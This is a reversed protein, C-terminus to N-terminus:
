GMGEGRAEREVEAPRSFSPLYMKSARKALHVGHAKSENAAAAPRQEVEALQKVATYTRLKGWPCELLPSGDRATATYINTLLWTRILLPQRAKQQEGRRGPAAADQDARPM